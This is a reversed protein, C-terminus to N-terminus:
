IYRMFSAFLNGSRVYCSNLGGQFLISNVCVCVYVCVSNGVKKRTLVNEINNRLYKVKGIGYKKRGELFRNDYIELTTLDIGYIM